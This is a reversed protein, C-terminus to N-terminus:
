IQISWVTVDNSRSHPFILHWKTTYICTYVYFYVCMCTCIYMYVYIEVICKYIHM